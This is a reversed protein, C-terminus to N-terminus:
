MGGLGILELCLISIGCSTDSGRILGWRFFVLADRQIGYKRYNASFAVRQHLRLGSLTGREEGVQIHRLLTSLIGNKVQEGSGRYYCLRM